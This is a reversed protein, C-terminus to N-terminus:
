PFFAALAAACRYRQLGFASSPVDAPCRTIQGAVFRPPDGAHRQRNVVPKQRNSCPWASALPDRNGPKTQKAPEHGCVLSTHDQAVPESRPKTTACVM